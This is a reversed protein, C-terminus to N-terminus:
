REAWIQISAADCRRLMVNVSGVRVQLPGGFLAQRILRVEKGTRFGLSQLRQRFQEEADMDGIIGQQGIALESLRVMSM